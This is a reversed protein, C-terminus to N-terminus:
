EQNLVSYIPKQFARLSQIYIVSSILFLVMVIPIIFYFPNLAVRYIYNSLFWKSFVFYSIPLSIIMGVVFEKIISMFFKRYIDYLRAGNVKRISLEIMKAQIMVLMLGVVGIITITLAMISFITFVLAFTKDPKLETMMKDELYEYNFPKEPFFQNFLKSLEKTNIRKQIAKLNSFSMVLYKKPMQNLTLVLPIADIKISKYHFDNVVGIIKHMKGGGINVYKNIADQPSEFGIRRLARLNIVIKDHDYRDQKGFMRGAIVPLDFVDQYDIDVDIRFHGDGDKPLMGQKYCWYWNEIERGPIDTTSTINNIEPLRLLAKRLSKLTESQQEPNVDTSPAKIAITNICDVGMDKNLLYYVQRTIILTGTILVLSVVFQFILLVQRVRIGEKNNALRGKLVQAPQYNSLVFAPYLASLVVGFIFILTAILYHKMEFIEWISTNDIYDILLPQAAVILITAFVLAVLNFLLSEFIFQWFLKAFPVGLLKKVGVEKARKVAIASSLNAYNVWAILIFFLSFILLASIAKANGPVTTEYEINSSLHIDKTNQLYFNDIIGNEANSKGNHKELMEPFAKETFQEVDVGERFLLYSHFYDYGWNTEVWKNKSLYTCFSFFFDSKITSNAKQERFVGKVLYQEKNNVIISKDVPNESGFYKKAIRDSIIMTNEDLLVDGNGHIFEYTYLNFFSPSAFYAVEENFSKKDNPEDITLNIDYNRRIVAHDLVESYNDELYQGVPYFSNATQWQLIGNRYRDYAVRYINEAKKHHSDYNQEFCVYQYILVAGAIGLVLGLLTVLSTIKNRRAIRIFMTISKM